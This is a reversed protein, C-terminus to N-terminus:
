PSPCPGARSSVSITARAAIQESTVLAETAGGQGVCRGVYGNDARARAQIQYRGPAEIVVAM